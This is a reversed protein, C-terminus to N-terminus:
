RFPSSSRAVREDHTISKDQVHAKLGAAKERLKELTEKRGKAGPPQLQERLREAGERVERLHRSIEEAGVGAGGSERLSELERDARMAAYRAALWKEVRDSSLEAERLLGPVEGLPLREVDERVFNAQITAQEAEEGSLYREPSSAVELREGVESALGDARNKLESFTEDRQRTLGAVIEAHEAESYKKQGDERYLKQQEGVFSDHLGDASRRAKEIETRTGEAFRRLRNDAQHDQVDRALRDTNQQLDALDANQRAIMGAIGEETPNTKDIM